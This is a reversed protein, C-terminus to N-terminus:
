IALMISCATNEGISDRYVTNGITAYYFDGPIVKRDYFAFGFVM